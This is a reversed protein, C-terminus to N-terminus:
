IRVAKSGLYSGVFSMPTATAWNSANKGGMHSVWHHKQNQSAQSNSGSSFRALLQFIETEKRVRVKM